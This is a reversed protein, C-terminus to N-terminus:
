NQFVLIVFITKLYHWITVVMLNAIISFMIGFFLLLCYKKLLRLLKLDKSVLAYGNYFLLQEDESLIFVPHSAMYPFFLKYGELKLAQTRGYAYWAAYQRNGKDRKILVEKFDSLYDYTKPYM